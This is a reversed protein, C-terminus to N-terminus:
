DFELPAQEGKKPLVRQIRRICENWGHATRVFKMLAIVGFVHKQLELHGVDHTLWQHHKASRNGMEDKPNRRELEERLGPTIRDWVLNNTYKGVVKGDLCDPANCVVAKKM